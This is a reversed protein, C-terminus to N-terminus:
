QHCLQSILDVLRTAFDIEDPPVIEGSKVDDCIKTKTLRKASQLFTLIVRPHAVDEFPYLECAEHAESQLIRQESLDEVSCHTQEGRDGFSATIM